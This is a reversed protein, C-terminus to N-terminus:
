HWGRLRATRMWVLQLCQVLPACWKNGRILGGVREIHLIMVRGTISKLPNSKPLQISTCSIFGCRLEDTKTPSPSQFAGSPRPTRKSTEVRTCARGFSPRTLPQYSCLVRLVVKHYTCLRRWPTLSTHACQSMTRAHYSSTSRIHPSTYPSRGHCRTELLWSIMCFVLLSEGSLQCDITSSGHHIQVLHSFKKFTNM